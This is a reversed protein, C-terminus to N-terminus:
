WQIAEIIDDRVKELTQEGKIEIFSHAESYKYYEIAPMVKEDFWTIRNEIYESHTDDQRGRKKMHERSWDAGVNIYIVIPNKREYFAFATDLVEAEPLSRPTGDIVLHMEKKLNNVMLDAWNWIALFDPQLRGVKSYDLALSNTYGDTAIFKRFRDGTEIYFLPLAATDNKKIYESLLRAQTGKGAGSRGVLVFTKPSM